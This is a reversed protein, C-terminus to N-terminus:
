LTYVCMRDFVLDFNFIFTMGDDEIMPQWRIPDDLYPVYNTTDGYARCNATCRKGDTGIKGDQNWGDNRLYDIIQYSVISAMIEPIFSYSEAVQYLCHKEDNVDDFDDCISVDEPIEIYQTDLGYSELFTIATPKINPTIYIHVMLNAYIGCLLQGETQHANITDNSAVVVPRQKTLSDLLLPDYVAMCNWSIASDISTIRLQQPTEFLVLEPTNIADLLGQIQIWIEPLGDPWEFGSGDTTTLSLIMCFVLELM